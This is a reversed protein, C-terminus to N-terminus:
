KGERAMDVLQQFADPEPQKGDYGAALLKDVRRYVREVGATSNPCLWRRGDSTEILIQKRSYTITFTKEM